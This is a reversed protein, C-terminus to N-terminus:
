RWREQSAAAEAVDEAPICALQDQTIPQGKHDTITADGMLNDQTVFVAQYSGWHREVPRLAFGRVIQHGCSPCEYLDADIIANQGLRVFIGNRECRYNRQCPVCIPTYHNLERM